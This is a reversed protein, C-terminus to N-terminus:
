LTKGDIQVVAEGNRSIHGSMVGMPTTLEFSAHGSEPSHAISRDEPRKLRTMRFTGRPDTEIVVDTEGTVAAAIYSGIGRLNDVLFPGLGRSDDGM